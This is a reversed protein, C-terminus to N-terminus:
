RATRVRQPGEAALGVEEIGEVEQRAIWRRQLWRVGLLDVLGRWVRKRTTYKSRGHRRLRHAVQVQRVRAGEMQLLIPLFRHMGDFTPVRELLEARYAKLSCGIDTLSDRTVSRRIRNAARASACRIWPDHRTARVGAVVDATELEALLRPIDQPDNQLDADLTVVIGGRAARFGAALAASQGHQAPLRLVRFAGDNAALDRLAELSGDTSGDDVLVVEWSSGSGEMAGRIESGLIRLNEREDRLPVVISVEPNPRM